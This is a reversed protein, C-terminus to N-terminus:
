SSPDDPRPLVALDYPGGLRAAAARVGPDDASRWPRDLPPFVVPVVCDVYPCRSCIDAVGPPAAYTVVAGSPVCRLAPLTVLVDGLHDPRLLLVRVTGM